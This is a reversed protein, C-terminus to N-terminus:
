CKTVKTKTPGEKHRREVERREVFRYRLAENLYTGFNCTSALQKLNAAVTSVSEGDKQVCNHFRYREAVVLKKRAYHNKLITLLEWYTKSSSSDPSCLDSPVDYTRSGM